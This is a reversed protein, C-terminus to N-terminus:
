EENVLAVEIIKLDGKGGPRICAGINLEIVKPLDLAEEQAMPPIISSFIFVLFPYFTNM